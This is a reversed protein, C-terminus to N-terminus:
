DIKTARPTQAVLAGIILPASAGINVAVLAKLDIGSKLYIDVLGGGCLIMMITIVWYFASKLWVPFADPVTKRLQFLGLVEAFIGGLIGFGFGTLLDM